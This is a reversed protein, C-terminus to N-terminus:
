EKNSKPNGCSGCYKFDTEHNARQIKWYEGIAQGIRRKKYITENNHFGRRARWYQLIEEIQQDEKPTIRFVKTYKTPGAKRGM